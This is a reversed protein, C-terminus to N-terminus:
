ERRRLGPHYTATIFDGTQRDVFVDIYDDRHPSGLVVWAAERVQAETFVESSVGFSERRDFPKLHARAKAILEAHTM